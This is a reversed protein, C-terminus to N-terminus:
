NGIFYLSLTERYNNWDPNAKDWNPKHRREEQEVTLNLMNNNLKCSIPLHNSNNNASYIVNAKIIANYLRDNGIFHYITSSHTVNNVTYSYTYPIISSYTESIDPLNWIQKFERIINVLQTNKM